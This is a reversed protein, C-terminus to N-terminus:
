SIAQRAATFAGAISKRLAIKLVKNRETYSLKDSIAQELKILLAKATDGGDEILEVIEAIVRNELIALNEVRGLDEIENLLRNYKDIGKKDIM